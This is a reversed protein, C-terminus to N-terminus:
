TSFVVKGTDTGEAPQLRGLSLSSGCLSEESDCGEEPVTRQELIFDEMAQLHSEARGNFEWFVSQKM